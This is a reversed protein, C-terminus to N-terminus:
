HQPYSSYKTPLRFSIPQPRSYVRHASGNRILYAIGVVIGAIAGLLLSTPPHKETGDALILRVLAGTAGAATLGAFIVVPYVSAPPTKVMGLFLTILLALFAGAAYTIPRHQANMAALVRERRAAERREAAQKACHDRLRKVMTAAPFTGWSPYSGDPSAQALQTWIKEASGGFTDVALIPLRRSSAIQGAILTSTAGALLLVADVGDKEALSRYFPAEWDQSPYVDPSFLERRMAQEPFKILGDQSKAHRVRIAGPGGNLAKVYGAVVHTELDEDRSFYVVLGFGAKALEAGIERGTEKAAAVKDPDLKQLGGIVAVFPRELNDM